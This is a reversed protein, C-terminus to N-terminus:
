AMRSRRISPRRRRPRADPDITNRAAAAFAKSEMRPLMACGSSIPTASFATAIPSHAGCRRPKSTCCSRHFRIAAAARVRGHHQADHRADAGGSSSPPMSWITQGRYRSRSRRRAVEAPLRGPRGRHHHRRGRRMEDAIAKAVWGKYFGDRGHDRIAELTRALDPQKLLQDPRHRQVTSPTSRSRQRRSVQRLPSRRGRAFARSLLRGRIRRAGAPDGSRSDCRPAAQRLPSAGRAHRRRCRSRRVRPPGSVSQDTPQGAADLYMDPTAAAPATERYDLAYM